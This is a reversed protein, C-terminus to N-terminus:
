LNQFNLRGYFLCRTFTFNVLNFNVYGKFNIYLYIYVSQQRVALLGDEILSCIITKNIYNLLLTIITMQLHNM